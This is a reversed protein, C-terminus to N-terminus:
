KQSGPHGKQHYCCLLSTLLEWLFVKGLQATGISGLPSPFHGWLTQSIVASPKPFGGSAKPFVGLEKAPALVVAWTFQTNRM